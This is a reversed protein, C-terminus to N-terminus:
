VLKLRGAVTGSAPTPGVRNLGILGPQPAPHTVRVPVQGDVYATDVPMRTGRSKLLLDYYTPYFVATIYPSWFYNNADYDNLAELRFTYHGPTFIVYDRSIAFSSWDFGSNPTSGRGVLEYYYTEEGGGATQDIQFAMANIAGPQASLGYEGSAEVAIYGAAPASIGVTVIDTMTTSATTLYVGGPFASFSLGAEDTIKASNLSSDPM